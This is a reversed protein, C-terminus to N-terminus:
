FCDMSLYVGEPTAAYLWGTNMSGELPSHVLSQVSTAPPGEDMWQWSEGADESKFVGEGEIWSFLTGRESSHVAVAGVDDSPLGNTTAKWTKGADTSQVIGMDTGWAYLMAPDDPNITAARIAAGGLENATAISEWTQGSDISRQIGTASTVVLAGDHPDVTLALPESPEATQADDGRRLFGYAASLIIVVSLGIAVILGRTGAARQLWRRSRSERRDISQHSSTV